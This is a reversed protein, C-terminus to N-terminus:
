KKIKNLFYNKVLENLPITKNELYVINDKYDRIKFFEKKSNKRWFRAIRKKTFIKAVQKLEHEELKMFLHNSMEIFLLKSSVLKKMNKKTEFFNSSHNFYMGEINGQLKKDFVFLCYDYEKTLVNKYPNKTYIFVANANRFKKRYKPMIQIHDKKYIYMDSGPYDGSFECIKEVAAM